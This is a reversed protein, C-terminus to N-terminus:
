IATDHLVIYMPHCHHLKSEYRHSSIKAATKHTFSESTNAVTIDSLYAENTFYHDYPCKWLGVSAIRDHGCIGHRWQWVIYLSTVHFGRNRPVTCLLSVAAHQNRRVPRSDPISKDQARRLEWLVDSVDSHEGDVLGCVDCLMDDRCLSLKPTGSM